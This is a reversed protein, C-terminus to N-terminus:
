RGTPLHITFVTGVEVIRQFLVFTIDSSYDRQIM